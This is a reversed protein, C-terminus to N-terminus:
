EGALECQLSLKECFDEINQRPIEVSVLIPDSGADYWQLLVQGDKYIHFHIAVEPLAHHESIEALDTLNERTALLHFVLPRPCTTGMEVHSVEPVSRQTFFHKLEKTPSGDELYAISGEPILDILALLFKHFDKPCSIQWHASNEDLHIGEREERPVARFLRSLWGM